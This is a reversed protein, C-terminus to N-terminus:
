GNRFRRQFDANNRLEDLQLYFTPDGVKLAHYLRRYEEKLCKEDFLDTGDVFELIYTLTVMWYTEYITDRDRCLLIILAECFRVAHPIRVYSLEPPFRGRGRGPVASPLSSDSASLIGGSKELDGFGANDFKLCVDSEEYLSISPLSHQYLQASPHLHAAPPPTHSGHVLACSSDDICHVYPVEKKLATLASAMYGEPVILAVDQVFKAASAFIFWSSRGFVSM